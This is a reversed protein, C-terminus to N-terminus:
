ASIAYSAAFFSSDARNSLSGGAPDIRFSNRCFLLFVGRRAQPGGESDFDALKGRRRPSDLAGAVRRRQSPMELQSNCRCNLKKKKKRPATCPLGRANARAVKRNKGM